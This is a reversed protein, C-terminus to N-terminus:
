VKLDSSKWHCLQVVQLVHLINTFKPTLLEGGKAIQISGMLQESAHRSVLNSDEDHSSDRSFWMALTLREVDTVQSCGDATFTM